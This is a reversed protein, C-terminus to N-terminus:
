EDKYYKKLLIIFFSFCFHTYAGVGLVTLDEQIFVIM